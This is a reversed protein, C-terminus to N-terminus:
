LAIPHTRPAAYRLPALRRLPAPASGTAEIFSHSAPEELARSWAGRSSRVPFLRPTHVFSM